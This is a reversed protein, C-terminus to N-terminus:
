SKDTFDTCTCTSDSKQGMQRMIQAMMFAPDEKDEKLKVPSDVLDFTVEVAKISEGLSSKLEKALGEYEKAVEEHAKKEDENEDFKADNVHVLKYEKYETVMPFIITDIEENLVLVDIGRSKFRELAPSNKLMSLSTKGTIFYIEKKTEDVNKLFEEFMVPEPSNLTNFQMLELIKERNGYDSYLGEKLVNGFEKFSHKTSRKTTQLWKQL